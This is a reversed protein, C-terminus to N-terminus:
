NKTGEKLREIIEDEKKIEDAYKSASIKSMIRRRRSHYSVDDPKFEIAKDVCSLANGYDGTETLVISKRYLVIPSTPNLELAKDYQLIALPYLGSLYYTYGLGGYPVSSDPQLRIVEKYDAIAEPYKKVVRYAIARKQLASVYESDKDLVQTYFHIRAEYDETDAAREMLTRIEYEKKFFSYDSEFQELKVDEERLRQDFSRQNNEMERKYYRRYEGNIILPFVVGVVLSFLAVVITLWTFVRSLEASLMDYSCVADNHYLEVKSDLSQIQTDLTEVERQTDSVKEELVSLKPAALILLSLILTIVAFRNM